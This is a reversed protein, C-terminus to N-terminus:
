KSAPQVQVRMWDERIGIAPNMEGTKMFAMYADVKAGDQPRTSFKSVGAPTLSLMGAADVAMCGTQNVHYGIATPGAIAVAQTKPITGGAALGSLVLWAHTYAALASGSGPRFGQKIAFAVGAPKKGKNAPKASAPKAPKGTGKAAPKAKIADAGTRMQRRAKAPKDAPKVDAAAADQAALAQTLAAAMAGMPSADVAPTTDAPTTTTTTDNM